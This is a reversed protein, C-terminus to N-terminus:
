QIRMLKRNEYLEVLPKKPMTLLTVETRKEAVLRDQMDTFGWLEEPFAEPRTPEKPGSWNIAKPLSNKCFTGSFMTM